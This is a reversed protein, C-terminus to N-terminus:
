WYSSTETWNIQEKSNQEKMQFELSRIWCRLSCRRRHMCAGPYGTLRTGLNKNKLLFSNSISKFKNPFIFFWM